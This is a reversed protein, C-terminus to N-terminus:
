NWSYFRDRQSFNLKINEASDKEELNRKTDESQISKSENKWTLTKGLFLPQSTREFEVTLRSSWTGQSISWIYYTWKPNEQSWCRLPRSVFQHSITEIVHRAAVPSARTGPHHRLSISFQPLHAPNPNEEPFSQLWRCIVPNTQGRPLAATKMQPSKWFPFWSHDM